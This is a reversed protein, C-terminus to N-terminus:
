WLRVKNSRAASQMVVKQRRQVCWDYLVFWVATIIFIAVLAVTYLVPGQSIHVDERKQSPYIHVVYPCVEEDLPVSAYFAQRTNMQRLDAVRASVELYDYKPDHLDGVGLFQVTPGNIEYTFAPSCSTKIVALIGNSNAPLIEKIWERWYVSLTLLGGVKHQSPDYDDRKRIDPDDLLDEIIPYSFDTLPEMPNEGTTLYSSFFDAWAQNEEEAATDGPEAIHYVRSM